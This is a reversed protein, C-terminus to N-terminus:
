DLVSYTRKIYARKEYQARDRNYHSDIWVFACHIWFVSNRGKIETTSASPGFIDKLESAVSPMDTTIKLPLSQDTSLESMRKKILERYKSGGVSQLIYHQLETSQILLSLGQDEVSAESRHIYRYVEPLIVIGRWINTYIIRHDCIVIDNSHDYFAEFELQQLPKWIGRCDDDKIIPVIIVGGEKQTGYIDGNEDPFGLRARALEQKLSEQESQPTHNILGLGAFVWKNLADQRTKIDNQHDAISNNQATVLAGGSTFLLAIISFILIVSFGHKM